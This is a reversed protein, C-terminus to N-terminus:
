FKVQLRLTTVGYRTQGFAVQRSEDVFVEHGFTVRMEPTLSRIYSFGYGHLANGGADLNPDFGEWRLAVQDLSSLKYNGVVHFGSLPHDVNTAAATANPLRDNGRMLEGRLTLGKVFLNDRSADLYAFRRAVAPSTVGSATYEPREGGMASIGVSSDGRVWRAQGAIALDNGTGPALNAQEADGITLANFVGLQFVGDKGDRRIKFGRSRETTFLLQNYQAREPMERVSSSRELEYGLIFPIQGAYVRDRGLKSGGSMDYWIWADRLQEQTTNLGTALDFSVKAGVRPSTNGEFTVRLRRFRFADFQPSGKRDTDQYQFQAYGSLKLPTSAPTAPAPKPAGPQAEELRKLSERIARLDDVMQQLLRLSEDSSTLKGSATLEGIAKAKSEAAAKLRATEAKVDVSQASAHSLLSAALMAAVSCRVSM